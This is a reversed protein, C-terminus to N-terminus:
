KIVKISTFEKRFFSGFGAPYFIQCTNYNFIIKAIGEYAFTGDPYTFEVTFTEGVLASVRTVNNGSGPAIMEEIKFFICEPTCSFQAVKSMCDCNGADVQIEDHAPPPTFEVGGSTQAQAQILALCLGATLFIKKM